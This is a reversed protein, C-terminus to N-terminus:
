WNRIFPDKVRGEIVQSAHFATVATRIVTCMGTDTGTSTRELILLIAFPSHLM